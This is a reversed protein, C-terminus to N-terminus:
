ESVSGKMAAEAAERALFWDNNIEGIGYETYGHLYSDEYIYQFENIPDDMIVYIRTGDIVPAKHLLGQEEADEYAALKKNIEIKQKTTAFGVPTDSDDNLINWRKLLRKM